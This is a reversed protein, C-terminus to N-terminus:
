GRQKIDPTCRRDTFSSCIPYAWGGSKVEVIKRNTYDNVPTVIADFELVEETGKKLILRTELYYGSALLMASIQDEYDHDKPDKPLKITM